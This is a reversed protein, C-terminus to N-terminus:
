VVLYYNGILPTINRRGIMQEVEEAVMGTWSQDDSDELGLICL